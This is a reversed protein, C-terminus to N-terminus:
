DSVPLDGLDKNEGSSVETGDITKLLQRRGPVTLLYKQGPLLAARFRGDGDSQDTVEIGEGRVLCVILRPVPRGVKDVLRGLITGCPDLRATLPGIFDGRVHLIKGLQKAEHRFVLERTRSPNLGRVLFAPGDLVDADPTATLGEVKVGTLPRGDPDVAMGPVSRAPSLTIELALPVGRVDPNIPSFANYNEVSLVGAERAVGDDDVAAYSDRPSGAVCVVGPGPLVALRFSGDDQVRASAAPGGRNVLVSKHANSSLPYYDVVAVAPPGGRALDTVRGALPLGPLLDVTVELPDSGPSNPVCVAATFYPRGTPPQATVLYGEAKPCGSIEFRGNVDTVATLSTRDVKVCAGAVPLGTAQDRVMGRVPRAPATVYEFTAGRSKGWYPPATSPRTAVELSAQQIGNGELALIVVRDRGLETLRFRGDPDTRVPLQGPLTGSWSGPPPWFTAERRFLRTVSGRSDSILSRATVTAGAVPRRNQDVVRGEVPLDEVLRLRLDPSQSATGAEVWDPGYGAAVAMVAPWFEDLSRADLEARAFVFDFRGDPGSTARRTYVAPPAQFGPAFRRVVFGLYLGAGSIPKGEPDLVQGRVEVPGAALDLPPRMRGVALVDPVTEPAATLSKSARHVAFGAALMGVTLALAGATRVKILTSGRVVETALSKAADSVGETTSECIGFVVAGRFTRQILLAVATASAPGRSVEVATLAASLALGRRLLRDHLRARGRELRGKVSGQTWGLQRAAEELTRGELCCLIVPLRNREPLRWLEEEFIQLLERTSIEALPDPRRDAPSKVLPEFQRERRARASRAKLAVRRAVGYLWASVAQPRRIRAAKRALVLFTAQFADEADNGPGLVRRCVHLVLPGHREMLAAFAGEGRGSVIERVLAADSTEPVSRAVSQRIYRLVSEPGAPM